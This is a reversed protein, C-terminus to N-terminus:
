CRLLSEWQEPGMLCRLNEIVQGKVEEATTGRIEAVADIVKEIVKPM